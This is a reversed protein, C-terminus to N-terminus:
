VGAQAVQLHASRICGEKLLVEARHRKALGSHGRHRVVLLANTLWVSRPLHQHMRPSVRAFDLGIVSFRVHGAIRVRRSCPM